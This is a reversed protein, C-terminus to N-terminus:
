TASLFTTIQDPWDPLGFAALIESMDLSNKWVQENENVAELVARQLEFLNKPEWQQTKTGFALYLLAHAINIADYANAYHLARLMDPIAIGGRKRGFYCIVMSVDATVGGDAWPLKSYGEVLHAELQTLQDILRTLHEEPANKKLNRAVAMSVALRVLGHPDSGALLELNKVDPLLDNGHTALAGLSLILSAKVQPHTEKEIYKQLIRSIKKRLTPFCAFVYAACMRVEFNEDNLLRTFVPLGDSVKEYTTRVWNREVSVRASFEEEDMDPTSEGIMQHIDLSANGTALHSLFILIKPKDHTEPHDLIELLFPVAYATAEYIMGQHWINSYLLTLAKERQHADPSALASIQGPVDAAEGFAHRLKSWQITHLDNLM